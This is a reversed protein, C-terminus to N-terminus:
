RKSALSWGLIFTTLITYDNKELNCVNLMIVVVIIITIITICIIICISSSSKMIEVHYEANVKVEGIVNSGNM